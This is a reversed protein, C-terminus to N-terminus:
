PLRRVTVEYQEVKQDLQKLNAEDSGAVVPRPNRRGANAASVRGQVNAAAVARQRKMEALTALNTHLSQRVLPLEEIAQQRKAAGTLKDLEGDLSERDMTGDIAMEFALTKGDILTAQYTIGLAGVALPTPEVRTTRSM